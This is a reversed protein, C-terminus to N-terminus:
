ESSHNTASANPHPNANWHMVALSPITVPRSRAATAPSNKKQSREEKSCRLPPPAFSRFLKRSDGELLPAAASRFPKRSDGELLPAAASRFPKRSDGELLPAAASRFLKRSDGELLPAAASRLLKGKNLLLSM